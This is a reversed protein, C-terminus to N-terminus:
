FFFDKKINMCNNIKKKFINKIVKIVQKIESVTNGIGSPLYLGYKYIHESVPFKENKNILKLKKIIPQMHM